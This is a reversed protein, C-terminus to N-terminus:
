NSLLQLVKFIEICKEVGGNSAAYKKAASLDSISVKQMSGTHKKKSAKPDANGLKKPARKMAKSKISYIQIRSSAPLSFGQDKLHGEVKEVWNEPPSKSFAGIKKMFDRAISAKSPKKKDSKEAVAM